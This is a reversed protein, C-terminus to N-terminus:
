RKAIKHAKTYPQIEYFCSFLVGCIGGYLHADIAVKADILRAMDANAGFFQEYSIKLIVIFLLVYALTSHKKIEKYLLFIFIGHLVGSLGVYKDIHHSFFHIGITVAFSCCIFLLFLTNSTINKGFLYWMLSLSATNLLLHYINTHLFNASILRWLQFHDVDVRDYNLYASLHPTFYLIFCLLITYFIM